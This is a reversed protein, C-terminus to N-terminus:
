FSDKGLIGTEYLERLASIMMARGRDGFFAEAMKSILSLDPISDERSLMTTLVKRVMETHKARQWRPFLVDILYNYTSEPSHAHNRFLSRKEINDPLDSFIRYIVMRAMSRLVADDAHQLAVKASESTDFCFSVRLVQEVDHYAILCFPYDEYSGNAELIFAPLVDSKDEQRYVQISTATPTVLRRM